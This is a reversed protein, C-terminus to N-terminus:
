NLDKWEGFKLDQRKEKRYKQKLMKVDVTSYYIAM